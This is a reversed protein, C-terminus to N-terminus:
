FKWQEPARTVRGDLDTWIHQTSGTVLVRDDKANTIEYNFTLRRSKNEAIWARVRARDGYVLSGLYRVQVETVPLRYGDAEVLAYDSGQARMYHSRAEEFYVIYSAHHVVGMADTEAYRVPFEATAEKRQESQSDMLERDKQL